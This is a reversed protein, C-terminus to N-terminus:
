SAARTSAAFQIPLRLVFSTHDRSPDLVLSGGHAVAAGSAVSLGLGSGQGVPKTTFFPEMIHDRVEPAIGPGSDTTRFVVENEEKSASLEIWGGPSTRVADFANLLLQVLAQVVQGRRCAVTVGGATNDVRLAVTAASFRARSLALVDDVLVDITVPLLPESNDDRSFTLLARIIRNIRMATTEIVQLAELVHPVEFPKAVVRQLNEATATIIQLPSNIEHAVGAAMQGLAAMKNAEVMQAASRMRLEQESARKLAGIRAEFSQVLLRTMPRFVFLAELMLLCLTALVLLMHDDHLRVISAESLRQQASVVADLDALLSSAANFMESALQREPEAATAFVARDALALYQNVRADLAVPATKYMAVISPETMPPLGLSADGHMLGEHSRRMLAAAKEMDHRLGDQDTEPANAIQAALLALRQTLMRQRGSVNIVAAFREQAVIVRRLLIFSTVSLLAILTLAVVYRSTTMRRIPQYDDALPLTM